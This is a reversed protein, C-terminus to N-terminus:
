RARSLAQQYMSSLMANEPFKSTDDFAKDDLDHIKNLEEIAEKIRKERARSWENLAESVEQDPDEAWTYTSRDPM